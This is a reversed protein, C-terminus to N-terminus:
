ASSGVWRMHLIPLGSRPSMGEGVVSFGEKAYLKIARHNRLNVSLSLGGPSRRKAAAILLTGLGSRQGGIAVALQDLEQKVPDVTVFGKPPGGDEVAILLRAGAKELAELHTVFWPRQADFDIDPMAATWAEVWLDILAPRDAAVAERIATSV